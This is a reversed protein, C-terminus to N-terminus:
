EKGAIMKQILDLVNTSSSFLRDFTDVADDILGPNDKRYILVAKDGEAAHTLYLLMKERNLSVMRYTQIFETGINVQMNGTSALKSFSDGVEKLYMGVSEATFSADKSPMALALIKVGDLARGLLSMEAMGAQELRGPGVLNLPALIRLEDGPKSVRGFERIITNRVNERGEIAISESTPTLGMLQNYLLFATSEANVNQLIQLKQSLDEKKGQLESAADEKKRSLMKIIESEQIQYGRAQGLEQETTIYGEEELQKLQRYIYARSYKKGQIKEFRAEIERHNVPKSPGGAADMIAKFMVMQTSNIDIGLIDFDTREKTDSM